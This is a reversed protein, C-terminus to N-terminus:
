SGIETFTGNDFQVQEFSIVVSSQKPSIMVTEVLGLAHLGIIKYVNGSTHKYLKGKRALWYYHRRYSEKESDSMSSIRQFLHM